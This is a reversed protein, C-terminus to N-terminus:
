NMHIKRRGIDKSTRCRDALTSGAQTEVVLMREVVCECTLDTKLSEMAERRIGRRPQVFVILLAVAGKTILLRIWVTAQKRDAESPLVVRSRAVEIKGSRSDMLADCRSRGEVAGQGQSVFSEFALRDGEDGLVDERWMGSGLDPKREDFGRIAAEPVAEGGRDLVGEIVSPDNM